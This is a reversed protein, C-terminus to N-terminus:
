SGKRKISRLQDYFSLPKKEPTKPTVRASNNAPITTNRANTLEKKPKVAAGYSQFRSKVKTALYDYGAPRGKTSVVARLESRFKGAFMEVEERYESLEPHRDVFERWLQDSQAKTDNQQNIHQTTETVIKNKFDDLFAQPDSYLKETDYKPAQETQPTVSQAQQATHQLAERVGQQYADAALKEKEHTTIQSEAYALAEEQTDFTRDGIRYKGPSAAPETGEQEEEQEASAELEPNEPTEETTEENEVTVGGEDFVNEKDTVEQQNM